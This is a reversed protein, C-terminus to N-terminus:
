VGMAAMLSVIHESNTLMMDLVPSPNLGFYLVLIAIVGMSVTQFTNIDTVTGLKENYVGFMARQLAWLHYAATIVIASVAIIVYSPLNVFSGALVSVEAIFGSLGPLGLSAMFTMVM